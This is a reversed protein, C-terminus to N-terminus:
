IREHSEEMVSKMKEKARQYRKRLVVESKGLIYSLEGYSRQEVAIGYVLARDIPKLVNLAQSLEPSLYKEDIPPKSEIHIRGNILRRKMNIDFERKRIIDICVNYATKYLYSKLANPNKIPTRINYVRIFTDSVADESDHYNGLIGYCYRLLAASYENIFEEFSKKDWVKEM